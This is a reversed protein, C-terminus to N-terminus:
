SDSIERCIKEVFQVFRQTEPPPLPTLERLDMDRLTQALRVCNTSILCNDGALQEALESQHDGMLRENVVAVLSCGARLCEMCTGAGCHGIVLDAWEIDSEISQKTRYYSILVGSITGTKPEFSGDGIQLMLQKYGRSQLITLVEESTVTKVLEDFKTTGVTVFVNTM